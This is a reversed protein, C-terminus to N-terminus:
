RKPTPFILSLFEQRVQSNLFLVLFPNIILTLSFGYALLIYTMLPAYSHFTLKHITSYVKPLYCVLYIFFVLLARFSIHNDSLRNTTAKIRRVVLFISIYCFSLIFLPVNLIVDTLVHELVSQSDGKPICYSFTPDLIYTNWYVNRSQIFASLLAVAAVVAWYYLPRIESRWNILLYRELGTMSVLLGSFNMSLMFSFGFTRCYWESELVEPYDLIYRFLVLGLASISAAIDVLAVCITLNLGFSKKNQYVRFLVKLVVLNSVLGVLGLGGIGTLVVKSVEPNYQFLDIDYPM